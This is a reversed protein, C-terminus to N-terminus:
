YLLHKRLIEGFKIEYGNVAMEELVERRSVSGLYSYNEALIDIIINENKNKYKLVLSVNDSDKVCYHKINKFENKSDSARSSEATMCIFAAALIVSFNIKTKYFLYVGALLVIIGLFSSIYRSINVAFSENIENRLFSIFIRGGDLPFIPLLNIIMMFLNALFLTQHRITVAIIIYIFNVFPGAVSVYFENKFSSFEDCKMSIGWPQIKFFEVKQKLILACIFHGLEHSLSILFVLLFNNIIGLKYVIFLVVFFLPNIRIM